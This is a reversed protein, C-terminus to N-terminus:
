SAYAHDSPNHLDSPLGRRQEQCLVKENEPIGSRLCPTGRVRPAFVLPIGPLCAFDKSQQISMWTKRTGSALILNM